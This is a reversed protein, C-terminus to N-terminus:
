PGRVEGERAREESEKVAGGGQGKVFGGESGMDNGRREEREVSGQSTDM